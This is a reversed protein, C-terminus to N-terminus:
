FEKLVITKANPGVDWVNGEEKFVLRSFLMERGVEWVGKHRYTALVPSLSLPFVPARHDLSVNDGAGVQVEEKVPLCLPVSLSQPISCSAEM